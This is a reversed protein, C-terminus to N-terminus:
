WSKLLGFLMVLATIISVVGYLRFFRVGPVVKLLFSLDLQSMSALGQRYNDLCFNRVREPRLLSIMGVALLLGVCLLGFIHGLMGIM